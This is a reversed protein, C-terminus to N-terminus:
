GVMDRDVKRLRVFAAWAKPYKKDKPDITLLARCAEQIDESSPRMRANGSSRSKEWREEVDRALALVEVPARKRTPRALPHDPPFIPWADPPQDVRWASEDHRAGEGAPSAHLAGQQGGRQEDEQVSVGNTTQGVFQRLQQEMTGGASGQAASPALKTPTSVSPSGVNPVIKQVTKAMSLAGAPIATDQQAITEENALPCSQFKTRQQTIRGDNDDIRAFDVAVAYVFAAEAPQGSKDRAKVAGCVYRSAGAEVSRLTGFQASAPDILVRRVAARAKMHDISFLNLVLDPNILQPQYYWVYEAALFAAGISTAILLAPVNM